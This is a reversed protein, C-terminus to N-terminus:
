DTVTDDRDVDSDASDPDVDDSAESRGGRVAEDYGHNHQSEIGERELQQDRDNSDRVRDHEADRGQDRQPSDVLDQENRPEAM